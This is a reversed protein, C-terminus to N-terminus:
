KRTSKIAAVYGAPSKIFEDKCEASCFGYVGNKYHSTDTLGASIPMGCVPDKKYTLMAATYPKKVVSDIAPKIVAEKNAPPVNVQKGHCAALLIAFVICSKKM